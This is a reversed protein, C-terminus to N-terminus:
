LEIEPYFDNPLQEIIEVDNPLDGIIQLCTQDIAFAYDLGNQHELIDAWKECRYNSEYKSRNSQIQNELQILIEKNKTYIYM